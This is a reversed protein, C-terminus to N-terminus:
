SELKSVLMGAIGLDPHAADFHELSLGGNLHADNHCVACHERVLANQQTAPMTAGGTRGPGGVSRSDIRSGIGGRRWDDRPCVREIHVGDPTRPESHLKPDAILM